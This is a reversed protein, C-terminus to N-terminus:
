LLKKTIQKLYGTAINNDLKGIGATGTEKPPAYASSVLLGTLGAISGGFYEGWHGSKALLMILAGIGVGSIGGVFGVGTGLATMGISFKREAPNRRTAQGYRSKTITYKRAM